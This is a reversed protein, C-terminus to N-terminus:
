DNHCERRALKLSVDLCFIFLSLRRNNFRQFIRPEGAELAMGILFISLVFCPDKGVDFMFAKAHVAIGAVDYLLVLFRIHDLIGAIGTVLKGREGKGARSHRYVERMLIVRLLCGATGAMWSKEQHLLPARFQGHVFHILAVGTTSAVVAFFGECSCLAVSAM